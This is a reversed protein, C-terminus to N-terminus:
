QVAIPQYIPLQVNEVAILVSSSFCAYEEVNLLGLEQNESLLSHFFPVENQAKQNAKLSELISHNKEHQM